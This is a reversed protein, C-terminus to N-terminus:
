SGDGCAPEWIDGEFCEVELLKETAIAPTRYFDLGGKAAKRNVARNSM